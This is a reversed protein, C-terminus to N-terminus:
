RQGGDGTVCQVGCAAMFRERDFSPNGQALIDALNSALKEYGISRSGEAVERVMAALAVFLQRSM